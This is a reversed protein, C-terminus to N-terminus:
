APRPGDALVRTKEAKYESADLVGSDRMRGLRELQDLREDAAGPAAAPSTPAERARWGAGTAWERMRRFSMERTAGPYERATQRRLAELGLALLGILILALIPQRFAPTPGWALLVLVIVGFGGWAFRPERLYPALGRRVAVASASPGALWAAAVIVVGYAIAATAAQVLLSTGISWAAEAAPEVSATTALADVVANGALARAVLAAAGAFLFGIGCARLAERRWGRALYIGLAFLALALALSVIAVAKLLSVADQALELQSSRLVVIEAASEPLREEVRGGVGLNSQTQNLLAKLDLTVEGGGTSIVDSEGGEVIALLRTAARRNAEEWAQQVRPRLLLNDLRQEAFTQLGSAAPGALAQATGPRLIQEFAQDLESQVDVHAYVQDVMFTAVQTRIADNEILESSTEAWNDADLLQRNAWLAFIALFTLLSAVAILAFGLRRHARRPPPAPDTTEIDEGDPM